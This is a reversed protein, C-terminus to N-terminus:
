RRLTPMWVTMGIRVGNRKLGPPIGLPALAGERFDYFYYLYEAYAGVQRTLGYRVRLNATYTDYALVGQTMLSDGSSYGGAVSLNVRRELFGDLGVFVSNSYVPEPIDVVYEIGRRYNGKVHWSRGFPYGIEGEATGLYRRTRVNLGEIVEPVDASTVGV